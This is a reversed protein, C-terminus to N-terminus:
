WPTARYCTIATAPSETREVGLRGENGVWGMQAGLWTGKYLPCPGQGRNQGLGSCELVLQESAPCRTTCNGITGLCCLALCATLGGLSAVQVCGAGQLEGLRVPYSLLSPLMSGWPADCLAGAGEAMMRLMVKTSSWDQPCFKHMLHLYPSAGPRFPGSVGVLSECQEQGLM